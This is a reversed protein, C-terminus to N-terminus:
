AKGVQDGALLGRGGIPHYMDSRYTGDSGGRNRMRAVRESRRWANGSAATPELDREVQGAVLRARAHLLPEALPEASESVM